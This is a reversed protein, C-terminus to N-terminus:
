QGTLTKQIVSAQGGIGLPSSFVTQSASGRRRNAMDAARNAADQPNVPSPLALPSNPMKPGKSAIGKIGAAVGVGAGGVVGAGVATTGLTGLATAATTGIATTGIGALTSGLAAVGAAISSIIPM